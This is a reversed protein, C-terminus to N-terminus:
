HKGSWWSFGHNAAWGQAAWVASAQDFTMEGSNIASRLAYGLEDQKLSDNGDTDAKSLIEAFRELSMGSPQLTSQWVGYTAQRKENGYLPVANKFSEFDTVAATEAPATKATPTFAVTTKPTTAPAETEGSSSTKSSGKGSWKAFDTKWTPGAAAWIAEAQEQTIEGSDLKGLLWPGIEDQNLKGDTNGDAESMIDSYMSTPLGLETLTGTFAKRKKDASSEYTHLKWDDRRGDMITNWIAIADRSFGAAPVGSLQSLAQLTKYIKGWPTMAGYSTVKTAKDLAGTALQYTEWWIQAANYVNRISDTAINSSNYGSLMSWLDKIIPLKNTILIDQLLNGDLPSDEGFLAQLFKELFSEYDDDDRVADWISEALANFAASALYVIYAHGIKSANRRWGEAKGYRREDLSLNSAANLLINYSLTPEAMFPTFLKDFNSKSRMWESRTLTSDMVQSSYIVERFLDSTADMLAKGSLGRNEAKAQLKCAVWLRGWTLRDGLEAGKMSAEVIKDRFSDNHQIQGRMGKSIDTDYYGLSKWVASGSNEMAENYANRHAFAAALYQPKIVTLARVYSTPQLLAVRLNAGVAAAKFNGMLGSLVDAGRDGSETVGNIDKMLTRFYHQAQGGFAEEMAAQLTRTDYTGDERDIREKYNFWKIADLIPLGMGNLKAMDSMHNAFTDFIDGVILANSAKPNLAKSSSLNLLRFMSNTQADTDAMPRDLPDVRIPYYSERETYFNYGFRRMSIENGWEAGKVAMYNQLAKAVTRQRETLLGTIKMIDSYSLHYHATDHKKGKKTEIDGIRIGGREIHKLAQERNLLMSLEMIQGTTMTIKSGDSLEIEHEQKKWAAVEKDEYADETFKIIEQANFAMKEWGKAFGEFISQGGAGFRKFVYYPVGNKWVLANRYRNGSSEGAKGLEGMYDVDGSAAERVSEYRANAMFRNMNRIASSISSLFNSLDKLQAANMQNITYSRNEGLAKTILEATNRLFELSEPSVDVYGGLDEKMEGTGNIYDQQNSLIQQLQMLRAGFAKDNRTEEGGGLLRKSSLDIETLFEALPGKLVEPVHVKDDNKMLMEYLKGAKKQVQARYKTIGASEERRERARKTIDQYHEKLAQIKEAARERERAKIEAARATGEERVQNTRYDAEKRLSKYKSEAKDLALSLDYITRWLGAAEKDSLANEAKLQKIQQNLADRRSKARDADTQPTPRMVGELAQFAIRNALDETAEGMYDEFPNVTIGEGADFMSALIRIYDGENKASDEGPQPLIGKYEAAIDTYFQDVTMYQSHDISESDSKALTFKGFNRKRFEDYGGETDLEGLFEPRITLKAGKIRDRIEHYLETGDDFTTQANEVILRAANRARAKLEEDTIESAETQLIYDGVAKLEAALEARDAMSGYEKILQGALRRADSERVEPTKTLRLRNQLKEITKNQKDTLKKLEDVADSLIENESRLRTYALERGNQEEATDDGTNDWIQFQAGEVSNLKQLRDQEDGAKYTLVNYGREELAQVVGSEANDPLIYALAEEPYVIRRPKAEFYPAPMNQVDQKLQWLEETLEPYLNIWRSENNLMRGMQAKSNADRLTELLIQETSDLTEWRDSKAAQGVIQSLRSHFEKMYSDYVDDSIREGLLKGRDARMEEVTKYTKTAAGRLNVGFVGVGKEQEKQMQKVINELTAPVHTQKFSRRNGSDTYPDKGNPIGSGKVVGNFTQEIWEKFGPDNEVETNNMLARSLADTDLETGTSNGNEQYKVLASKIYGISIDDASYLPKGSLLRKSDPYTKAFHENLADAIKGMTEKSDWNASEIEDVPVHEFVYLLQDNKYKHSGDLAAERSAVEPARGISKLYAFKIVNRKKLAEFLNGTSDALAKAVEGDDLYSYGNLAQFIEPGVAKELKQKLKWPVDVEFETRPETPTWADNSYLRNQRNVQPDITSRPFVISVDGFGEHSTGAKKIAISPFPVGGRALMRKLGSVSKNHVAVLRDTEEVEDWMQFQKQPETPANNEKVTEATQAVRDTPAGTYGRFEASAVSPSTSLARKRNGWIQKFAEETNQWGSVIQISNRAKSVLNVVVVKGGPIAKSMLIRVSGDKRMLIRLIDDYDDVYENIHEMQERSLPINREDKELGIHDGSHGLRNADLEMYDGHTDVRGETIDLIDDALADGVKGYAKIINQVKRDLAGGIFAAVEERSTLIPSDGSSIIREKEHRVHGRVGVQLYDELDAETMPQNGSHTRNEADWIQHQVDGGETATNKTETTESETEAEAARVTQEAQLNEAAVSFANLWTERISEIAGEAARVERYLTFDSNTDIEAFAAKIDSILKSLFDWIREALTKHENVIRQVTEPDAFIVQCANAVMEDTLQDYTLEVQTRQRDRLIDNFLEPNRMMEDLVVKRLEEYEAPAYEGLFHTLEHFLSGAAINKGDVNANINLWLTGGTGILYEGGTSKGNASEFNALRIDLGSAKAIAEAINAVAQQTASLKSRDVAKYKVGGVEGNEEVYTIKGKKPREKPKKEQLEKRKEELQKLGEQTNEVNKRHELAEDYARNYAETGQSEPDAAVMAELEGVIRKFADQEQQGYERAAEIAKNINALAQTNAADEAVLAAAQQRIQTYRESSARIEAQREARIQAGIEAATKIQAPTLSTIIDSNKNKRASEYISQLNAGNAAYLAAAKNMATAFKASDQGPEYVKAAADAHKGLAALSASLKERGEATDIDVANEAAPRSSRGLSWASRFQAERLAGGQKADRTAQELTLGAAGLQYAEKIGFAYNVADVNATEYGDALVRAIDEPADLDKLVNQVLAKGAEREEQNTLNDMVEQATPRGDFRKQEKPTLEEGSMQRAILGSFERANRADYGRETLMSEANNALQNRANARADAGSVINGGGGLAGIAAGILTDYLVESWDLKGYLEGLSENKYLKEALPSLVDSIAEELGEEGAGLLLRMFTAGTGTGALKRIAYEVADDTIGAGYFMRSGLGFIKETFVEIGGKATGYLFQQSLTAGDLRAERSSAGSSRAFMPVLSSGTVLGLGADYGMQILNTAIDVGAQGFQSLGAKASELDAAASEGLRDAAAELAQAEARVSGWDHEEEINAASLDDVAYGAYPNTNGGLREGIAGLVNLTNGAFNAMGSGYDRSSGSIIQRARDVDSYSRYGNGAELDGQELQQLIERRRAAQANATEPDTAWGSNNDIDNLEQILADRGEWDNTEVEPKAFLGKIRDWLSKKGDSSDAAQTAAAREEVTLARQANTKEQMTQNAERYWAAYDDVAEDGYISRLRELQNRAGTIQDQYRSREEWTMPADSNLYDSIGVTRDALERLLDNAENEDRPTYIGIKKRTAAVPDSSAASSAASYNGSSSPATSLGMKQRAAAIPDIKNAM